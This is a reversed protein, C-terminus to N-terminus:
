GRRGATVSVATGGMRKWKVNGTLSGHDDSASDRRSTSPLHADYDAAYMQMGQGLQKFNSRCASSQAVLVACGFHCLAVVFVGLSGVLLVRSIQRVAMSAAIARANMAARARVHAKGAMVTAAGFIIPLPWIMWSQGHSLGALVLATKETM